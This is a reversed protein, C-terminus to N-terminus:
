RTAGSSFLGDINAGYLVVAVVSEPSLVRGRDDLAASTCAAAWEVLLRYKEWLAHQARAIRSESVLLVRKISAALLAFPVAGIDACEAMRGRYMAAIRDALQRVIRVDHSVSRHFSLPKKLEAVLKVVHAQVGTDLAPVPEDNLVRRPEFALLRAVDVRQRQGGSLEDPYRRLLYDESGVLL